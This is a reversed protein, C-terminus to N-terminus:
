HLVTFKGTMNRAGSTLRFFYLGAPLAQLPLVIRKSASTIAYEVITRGTFDTVTLTGSQASAPSAVFTIREAAPNPYAFVTLADFLVPPTEAALIVTTIKAEAAHVVPRKKFDDHYYSVFAVLTIIDHDGTNSTDWIANLDGTWSYTYTRGIEPTSPIIGSEGWAGTPIASVVRHHAYGLIPDGAGYYTHGTTGNFYNTQDYGKGLGIVSDEVIYLNIRMDGAPPLASFTVDVQCSLQASSARYTSAIRIDAFQEDGLHAVILSDWKGRMNGLNEYPAVHKPYAVRDIVGSPAFNVFDKAISNSFPATMSDVGFGAHHTVWIVSPHEKVIRAAIVDGDPCFGCQATSFEELLIHRQTEQASLSGNLFPVVFILLLVSPFTNRIKYERMRLMFYRRPNQIQIFAMFRQGVPMM